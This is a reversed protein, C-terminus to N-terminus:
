LNQTKIKAITPTHPLDSTLPRSLLLILLYVIVFPTLPAHRCKRCECPVESILELEIRISFTLRSASQITFTHMSKKDDFNKERKGKTTAFFFTNSLLISPIRERILDLRHSTLTTTILYQFIQFRYLKICIKLHWRTVPSWIFYILVYNICLVFTFINQKGSKICKVAERADVFPPTRELPQSIQNSYTFYNRNALARLFNSSRMISAM